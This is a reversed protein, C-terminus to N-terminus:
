LLLINECIQELMDINYHLINECIQELMDINYHKKMVFEHTQNQRKSILIKM